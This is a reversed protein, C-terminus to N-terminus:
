EIPVYLYTCFLLCYGNHLCQSLRVSPEAQGLGARGPGTRDPGTRGLRPHRIHPTDLTATHQACDLHRLKERLTPLAHVAARDVRRQPPAVAGPVVQAVRASEVVLHVAHVPRQLLRPPQYTLPVGRVREGRGCM